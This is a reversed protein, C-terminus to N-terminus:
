WQAVLSAATNKMALYILFKIHIKDASSSFINETTTQSMTRSNFVTNKIDNVASRYIVKNIDKADKKDKIQKKKWKSFTIHVDEVLVM